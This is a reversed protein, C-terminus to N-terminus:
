LLSFLMLSWLAFLATLTHTLVILALWFGAWFRLKISGDRRASELLGLMVLLMPLALAGPSMGTLYLGSLGLGAYAYDVGLMLYMLGLPLLVIGARPGLFVRGTWVLSVLFFFPIAFLTLNFSLEPTILGFSLIHPLAMVIYAFPPYLVFAPFGGFWMPDYASLRGERLLSLMKNFLYFHGPSDWGAPPGPQLLVAASRWVLVLACFLWMAGELFRAYRHPMLHPNQSSPM